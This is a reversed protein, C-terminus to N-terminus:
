SQKLRSGGIWALPDPLLVRTIFKRELMTRVSLAVNDARTFPRGVVRSEFLGLEDVFSLYDSALEHFMDIRQDDGPEIT